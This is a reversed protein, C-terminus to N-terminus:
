RLNQLNYLIIDFGIISIIGIVALSRIFCSKEVLKFIEEIVTLIYRIKATNGVNM